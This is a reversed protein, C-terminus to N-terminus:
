VEINNTIFALNFNGFKQLEDDFYLDDKISIVLLCQIGNTIYSNFKHAIESINIEQIFEFIIEHNYSNAFDTTGIIGKSTKSYYLKTKETIPIDDQTINGVGMGHHILCATLFKVKIILDATNNHLM